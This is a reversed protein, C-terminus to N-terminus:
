RMVSTITDLQVAICCDDTVLLKKSLTARVHAHLVCKKRGIARVAGCLDVDQVQVLESEQPSGVM